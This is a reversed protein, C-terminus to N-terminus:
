EREARQAGDFAAAAAEEYTLGGGSIATPPGYLTDADARSMKPWADVDAPQAGLGWRAANRQVDKWAAIPRYALTPGGGTICVTHTDGDIIVVFEPKVDDEPTISWSGLGRTRFDTRTSIHIHDYHGSAAQPRWGYRVDYLTGQWILYKCWPMRDARAEGLWYEFLVNCDVGLDPRHMVDTAFVWWEPSAQPWGTQSFPTHDQAPVATYHAENAYWSFLGAARPFAVRMREVIDRIPQAPELPRGLADWRSYAAVAM